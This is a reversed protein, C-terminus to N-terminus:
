SRHTGHASRVWLNATGNKPAGGVPFDPYGFGLSQPIKQEPTAGTLIPGDGSENMSQDARNDRGLHPNGRGVASPTAKPLCPGSTRIRKGRGCKNLM